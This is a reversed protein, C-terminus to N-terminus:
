ELFFTHDVVHKLVSGILAPIYLELPRWVKHVHSSLAGTNGFAQSTM